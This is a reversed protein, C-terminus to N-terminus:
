AINICCVMLSYATAALHTDQLAFAMTKHSTRHDHAIDECLDRSIPPLRNTNSRTKDNPLCHHDSQCAGSAPRRTEEVCFCLWRELDGAASVNRKENCKMKQKPGCPLYGIPAYMRLVLFWVMKISGCRVGTGDIKVVERRRDHM